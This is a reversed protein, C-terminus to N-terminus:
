QVGRIIDALGKVARALACEDSGGFGLVLGTRAASTVYHTSLASPYMGQDKALRVVQQDDIGTPLFTVLHLGADTNGLILVDDAHERIATILANRRALYITRMHCLHRAFFGQKLFDTLALQYLIPPSLDISERIRVFATVLSRPVVVYGLRLAPFLAASFTGVHVVRGNNDLGQLAALPRSAHRYESEYDDEVIWVEQRAAWSLLELRRVIDLSAGLPYQHAPTVYVAKVPDSLRRIAAVDIGQDDVAVPIVGAGSLSLARRIGPYSPEEICVSTESDTLALASLVLGMQSGNVIIVQSPDCDVARATRLYETVAERLPFHGAPDGYGLLQTPCASAHDRLLRSFSPNPFRDLAPVGVTFPGSRGGAPSDDEFQSQPESHSTPRALFTRGGIPRTLEDPIPDRVFTGSGQRGVIYGDELLQDFAMLVPFRSIQLERAVTRTSPLRQGHALRGSLIATRYGNYIQTYYPVGLTPDFPIVPIVVASARCRAHRRMRYRDVLRPPDTSSLEGVDVPPGDPSAPAELKM